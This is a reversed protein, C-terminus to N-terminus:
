KEPKDKRLADSVADAALKGTLIAIPLGSPSFTWQGAQYVDPIPTMVAQKIKPFRSESPLEGQAFAWGTIAGEANGSRSEITLPTSCFAASVKGAFGPFLTADLLAILQQTGYDKFEGYWGRDKVRKVLQYDMLTSVIIGTRGEPALSNDRLVPCSIEYTNLVLYEALWTKLAAKEDGIRESLRDQWDPLKRSSLGSKNPTYFAHAGCIGEFFSKDLEVTMYVTFISDGGHNARIREQQEEIRTRQRRNSSGGLEAAAYLAKMDACWVLKKYGFSRKDATTVTRNSIDIKGIQTDLLISGGDQRIRGLMKEALVGTGGIPYNYDLYLGFYSLAFFAPTDKFFHQTIMDILAQNDTFRKLHENIPKDLKSAKRINLQYKLLWPLLTKVLYEKDNAYDVFLPNDIGYLVDMYGMVKEIEATIAAIDAVNEPFLKELMKRYDSLSDKSVLRVWEGAIGISVPNSVMELAIGLEKLMPLLVGSNEFARIGGDFVFGEYEFSSVLGGAKEGKECLLVRYGQSCLYAASTLGAMGAGVVIVDYVTEKELPWV